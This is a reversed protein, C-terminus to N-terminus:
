APLEEEKDNHVLVGLRGVAYNRLGDVSLNHVPVSRKRTRANLGIRRSGPGHGTGARNRLEALGNAVTIV